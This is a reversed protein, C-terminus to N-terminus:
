GEGSSFLRIDGQNEHYSHCRHKNWGHLNFIISSCASWQFWPKAPVALFFRREPSQIVPFGDLDTIFKTSFTYNLYNTLEYRHQRECSFWSSFRCRQSFLGTCLLDIFTHHHYHHNQGRRFLVGPEDQVFMARSCHLNSIWVKMKPTGATLKTPTSAM